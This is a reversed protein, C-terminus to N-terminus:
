NKKEKSTTGKNLLPSYIELSDSLGPTFNVTRENKGFHGVLNEAIFKAGKPNLQSAEEPVSDDISDSDKKGGM